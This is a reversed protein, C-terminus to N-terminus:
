FLSLVSSFVSEVSHTAASAWNATVQIASASVKVVDSVPATVSTIVQHHVDLFGGLLAGFIHGISNTASLIKPRQEPHINGLKTFKSYLAELKAKYQAKAQNRIADMRLRFAATDAAHQKSTSRLKVAASIAAAVAHISALVESHSAIVADGVAKSGELTFV